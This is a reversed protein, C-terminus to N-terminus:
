AGEESQVFRAIRLTQRCFFTLRKEKHIERGRFKLGKTKTMVPM